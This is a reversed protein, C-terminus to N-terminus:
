RRCSSCRTVVQWSGAGAVVRSNLIYLARQRAFLKKPGRLAYAVGGVQELYVQVDSATVSGVNAVEVNAHRVEVGGGRVTRKVLIPQQARLRTLTQASDAEVVPPAKARKPAAFSNATLSSFLSITALVTLITFFYSM